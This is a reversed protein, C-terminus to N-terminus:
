KEYRARDCRCETKADFGIVWSELQDVAQLAPPHQQNEIVAFM